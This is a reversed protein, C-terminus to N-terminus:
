ALYGDDRLAQIVTRAVMKPDAVGAEGLAKEVCSEPTGMDEGEEEYMDDTPEAEDTVGDENADAEAMAADEESMEKPKPAPRGMLMADEAAKAAKTKPAFKEIM